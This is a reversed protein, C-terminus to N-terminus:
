CFVATPPNGGTMGTLTVPKTANKVAGDASGYVARYKWTGPLCNHFLSPGAGVGIGGETLGTIHVASLTKWNEGDQSAELL